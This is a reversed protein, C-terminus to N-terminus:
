KKCGRLINKIILVAFGEALVEFVIDFWDFTGAAFPTLQLLEMIVSFVFAMIFIRKLNATSNGLIAYLSFVLAHSWLMDPIYCRIFQFVGCDAASCDFHMGNGIISDIQRVFLVDPSLLYYLVAGTLLPILCNMAIIVNREHKTREM